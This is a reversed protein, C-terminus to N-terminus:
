DSSLDELGEEEWMLHDGLRDLEVKCKFIRERCHKQLIQEKRPDTINIVSSFM